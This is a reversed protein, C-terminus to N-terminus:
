KGNAYYFKDDISIELTAYNGNEDPTLYEETDYDYSSEIVNFNNGKKYIEVAEEASKAEINVYDTVWLSVKRKVELTFPKKFKGEKLEEWFESFALDKTRFFISRATKLNVVMGKTEDYSIIDGKKLSENLGPYEKKLKYHKVM